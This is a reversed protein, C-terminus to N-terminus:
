RSENGFYGRLVSVLTSIRKENKNYNIIIIIQKESNLEVFIFSQETIM